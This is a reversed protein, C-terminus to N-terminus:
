QSEPEPRRVRVLGPEVVVICGAIDEFSSQELFSRRAADVLAYSQDPSRLVLIDPHQGPPHRCIDAFRRDLTIVMRGEQAAVQAVVEDNRSSLDQDAVTAVEHRYGALLPTVRRLMNEDLKLKV